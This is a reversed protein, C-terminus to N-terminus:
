VSYLTTIMLGNRDKLTLLSSREKMKTKFPPALIDLGSNKKLRTGQGSIIDLNPIFDGEPLHETIIVYKFQDLKNLIQQVEDNSLHQLVHRLIACEGIPLDDEAIDLCHFDVNDDNFKKRNRHILDEVIDVAIYKQAYKSIEKGVNFDGCGLDCVDILEEFSNLFSRIVEIYPQVLEPDHAGFGSYFDHNEGGWLNREYVQAMADKTPWPKKHVRSGTTM